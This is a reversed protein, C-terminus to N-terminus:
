PEQYPIDEFNDDIYRVEFGEPTLAALTLLGTSFGSWFSSYFYLFPSNSLLEKMRVNSNVRKFMPDILAIKM